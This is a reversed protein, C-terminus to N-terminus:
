ITRDPMRNAPPRVPAARRTGQDSNDHFIIQSGSFDFEFPIELLGKLATRLQGHQEPKAFLLM